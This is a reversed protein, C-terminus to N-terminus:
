KQVSVGIHINKTAPKKELAEVSWPTYVEAPINKIIIALKYFAPRNDITRQELTGGGGANGITLNAHSHGGGSATTYDHDHSPNSVNVTHGHSGGSGIYGSTWLNTYTWAYLGDSSSGFLIVRANHEHTGHGSISASHNHSKSGTSISHLHSGNSSTTATHVHPPLQNLSMVFSHQGGTLGPNQGTQSGLLFRDRYDPRGSQGDCLSWGSPIDVLAGSWFAILGSNLTSKNFFTDNKGLINFEQETPEDDISVSWSEYPFGGGSDIKILFAVTAFVPRNDINAGLGASNITVTHSHNPETDSNTAGHSHSQSSSSVTHNPHSAPYIFGNVFGNNSAGGPNISESIGGGSVYRKITHTHSGSTTTTGSHSHSGDTDTNGTHNHDLANEFSASHNHSPLQASVLNLTHSGGITGPEQGAPAGLIFRDRFDPRSETGDCLAWGEPIQSLDGSWAVIVGLPVQNDNFFVDNEGLINWKDTNPVELDVLNWPTYAM